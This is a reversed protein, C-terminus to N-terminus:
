VNVRARELAAAYDHCIVSKSTGVVEGIEEYTLGTFHYLMLLLRDYKPLRGLITNVEDATDIDISGKADVVDFGDPIAQQYRELKPRGKQKVWKWVYWALNKYVHTSISAGKSEDFTRFIGPVRELSLSYLEEALEVRGKAAVECIRKIASENDIVFQWCPEMQKRREGVHYAFPQGVALLGSGLECSLKEASQALSTQRSEGCVLKAGERKVAVGKKKLERCMELLKVSTISGQYSM